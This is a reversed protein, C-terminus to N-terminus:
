PEQRGSPHGKANHLIEYCVGIADEEDDGAHRILQADVLEELADWLDQEPTFAVGMMWQMDDTTFGGCPHPQCEKSLRQLAAYLKAALPSLNNTNPM